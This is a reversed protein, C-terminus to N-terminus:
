KWCIRYKVMVFNDADYPDTLLAVLCDDAPVLKIIINTRFM